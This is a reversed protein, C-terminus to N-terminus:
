SEIELNDWGQTMVWSMAERISLAEVERPLYKGRGSIAEGALFAGTSDCADTNIKITSGLPKRWLLDHASRDPLTTKELEQARRWSTLFSSTQNIVQEALAKAGKWVKM